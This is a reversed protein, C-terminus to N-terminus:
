RRSAAVIGAAAEADATRTLESFRHVATGLENLDGGYSGASSAAAQACRLLAAASASGATPAPGAGFTLAAVARGHRQWDAALNRLQEPTLSFNPM